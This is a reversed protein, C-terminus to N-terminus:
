IIHFNSSAEQHTASSNKVRNSPILNSLIINLFENLELKNSELNDVNAFENNFRYCYDKLKNKLDKTLQALILGTIDQNLSIVRSDAGLRPHLGMSFALFKEKTEKIEGKLKYAEKLFEGSIDDLGLVYPDLEYSLTLLSKIINKDLAPIIDEAFLIVEIKQNQPLANIIALMGEYEFNNDELDLIRLNPMKSLIGALIKAAENNIHNNNLSLDQLQPLQPLINALTEVERLGILSHNFKLTTLNILKPLINAFIEIIKLDMNCSFFSLETLNPNQLLSKAIQQAEDYTITQNEITFITL